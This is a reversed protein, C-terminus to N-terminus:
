NGVTARFLTRDPLGERMFFSLTTQANLFQLQGEQFYEEFYPCVRELESRFAAEHEPTAIIVVAEGLDLGTKIYHSLAKALFVETEYFQVVHDTCAASVPRALFEKWDFDITKLMRTM